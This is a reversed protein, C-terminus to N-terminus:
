KKWQAAIPVCLSPGANARLLSVVCHPPASSGSVEASTRLGPRVYVERRVTKARNPSTM